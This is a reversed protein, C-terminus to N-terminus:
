QEAGEEEFLLRDLVKDVLFVGFLIPNTLWAIEKLAKKLEGSIRDDLARIESVLINAKEDLSAALGTLSTSIESIAPKLNTEILNELRSLWGQHDEKVRDIRGDLLDYADAYKTDVEHIEIQLDRRVREDGEAIAQDFELRVQELAANVKAAEEQAWKAADSRTEELKLYVQGTVPDLHYTLDDRTEKLRAGLDETTSVLEKLKDWVDLFKESIWDLLGM